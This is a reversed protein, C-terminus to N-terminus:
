FKKGTLKEIKRVGDVFSVLGRSNSYRVRSFGVILRQIEAYKRQVTNPAFPKIRVGLEKEKEIVTHAGDSSVYVHWFEPALRTKYPPHKSTKTRKQMGKAWAELAKHMDEFYPIFMQQGDNMIWFPLHKLMVDYRWVENYPFVPMDIHNFSIELM